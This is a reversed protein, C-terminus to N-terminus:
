NQKCQKFSLQRTKVLKNLRCVYLYDILLHILKVGVNSSYCFTNVLQYWKTTEYYILATANHLHCPMFICIKRMKQYKCLMSYLNLHPVFQAFLWLTMTWGRRSTYWCFYFQMTEIEPYTEQFNKLPSTMLKFIPIGCIGQNVQSFRPNRICRSTYIGNQVNSRISWVKRIANINISRWRM